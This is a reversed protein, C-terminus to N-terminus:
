GGTLAKPYWAIVVASKGKFQDLTYTKGDTGVLKFDPAKDGVKVAADEARGPACIAALALALGAGLMWKM